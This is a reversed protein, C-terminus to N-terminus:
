GKRGKGREAEEVLRSLEVRLAKALKAAADLTPNRIGREVMGVYTPHVGSKEALKEQSLGAAVRHKRVANGFRKSILTVPM